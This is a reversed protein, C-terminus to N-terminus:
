RSPRPFRKPLRLGFTKQLWPRVEAWDWRHPRGRRGLVRPAPMQWRYRALSRKSRHVITALESLTVLQEAPPSSEAAPQRGGLLVHLDTQLQGILARLDDLDAARRPCIRLHTPM